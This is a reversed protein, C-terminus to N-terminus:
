GAVKVKTPSLTKKGGGKVTKKGKKKPKEPPPEPEVPPPPEEPEPGPLDPLRRLEMEVIPRTAFNPVKHYHDANSCRFCGPNGWGRWRAFGCNSCEADYTAERFTYSTEAIRFTASPDEAAFEDNIEYDPRPNENELPLIKFLDPLLLLLDKLPEIEEKAGRRACSIKEIESENFGNCDGEVDARLHDVFDIWSRDREARKSKELQSDVVRTEILAAKLAAPEEGILLRTTRRAKRLDKSLVFPPPLLPDQGLSQKTQMLNWMDRYDQPADRHLDVLADTGTAFIDKQIAEEEDDEEAPPFFTLRTSRSKREQMREKRKDNPIKMAEPHRKFFEDLVSKRMEKAKKEFRKELYSITWLAKQWSPLHSQADTGYFNLYAFGIKLVCELLSYANFVRSEKDTFGKKIVTWRKERKRKQEIAKGCFTLTSIWEEESILGDFNHDAWICMRSMGEVTEPLLDSGEVAMKELFGSQPRRIFKRLCDLIEEPLLKKKTKKNLAKWMGKPTTKNNTMMEHCLCWFSYVALEDEDMEDLEKFMYAAAGAEVGRFAKLCDDLQALNIQAPADEDADPQGGSAMLTLIKDFTTEEEEADGTLGNTLDEASQLFDDLESKDEGFLATQRSKANLISEELREGTDGKASELMQLARKVKDGTVVGTGEYDLFVFLDRVRMKNDETFSSLVSLLSLAGLESADMLRRDKHM